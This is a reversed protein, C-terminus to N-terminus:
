RMLTKWVKVSASEEGNNVLQARVYETFIPILISRQRTEGAAFSLDEYNGQAEADDESDYDTGDASYLWRVRVGKTSGAGYTARVTLVIASYGEMDEFDINETASADISFSGVLESTRVPGLARRVRSYDIGGYVEAAMAM